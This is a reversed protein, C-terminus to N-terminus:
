LKLCGDETFKGTTCDITIRVVEDLTQLIDGSIRCEVAEDRLHVEIEKYNIPITYCKFEEPIKKIIDYMQSIDMEETEKEQAFAIFSTNYLIFSIGILMIYSIMM